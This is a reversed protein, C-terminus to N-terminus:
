ILKLELKGGDHRVRIDLVGGEGRGRRFPSRHKKRM